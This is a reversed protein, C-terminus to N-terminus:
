DNWTTGPPPGDPRHPQRARPYARETGTIPPLQGQDGRQRDVRAGILCSQRALPPEEGFDTGCQLIRQREITGHAVGWGVALNCAGDAVADIGAVTQDRDLM